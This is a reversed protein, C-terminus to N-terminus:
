SQVKRVRYESDWEEPALIYMTVIRINGAQEDTAIVAHFVLEESVGRLLFSPLYKDDSLNRYDGAFRSGESFKM